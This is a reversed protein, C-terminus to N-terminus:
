FIDPPSSQLESLYYKNEMPRLEVKLRFEEEMSKCCIAYRKFQRRRWTKFLLIYKRDKWKKDLSQFLLKAKPLDFQHCIEKGTYEIPLSPCGPM